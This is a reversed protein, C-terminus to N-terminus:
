KSIATQNPPSFSCSGAGQGYHPNSSSALQQQQPSSCSSGPAATGAAAAATGWRQRRRIMKVLTLLLTWWCLRMGSLYLPRRQQLLQTHQTNDVSSGACHKCCSTSPSCSPADSCVARCNPSQQQQHHPLQQMMWLQCLCEAWSCQLDAAAPCQHFHPLQSLQPLLAASPPQGPAMMAKHQGACGATQPQQPVAPAASASAAHVTTSSGRAAAIDAAAAAAAAAAPVRTLRCCPHGSATEPLRRQQQWRGQVDLVACCPCRCCWNCHPQLLMPGLFRALPQAAVYSCLLRPQSNSCPTHLQLAATSM